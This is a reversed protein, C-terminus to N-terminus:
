GCATSCRSAEAATRSGPNRLSPAQRGADATVLARLAQKFQQADASALPELFRSEASSAAAAAHRMTDAGSATLGVINRRRDEADPHRAVLGKRELADLLAVMTTRDVGLSRAAQQQSAPERGSLTLLVALERGDVGYPELAAATLEGLSLWAQKLLYGLRSSPERALGGVDARGDGASDSVGSTDSSDSSM